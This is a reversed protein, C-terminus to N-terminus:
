KAAQEVAPRRPWRRHAVWWELLLLGLGALLLWPWLERRGPAETADPTIVTQGIQITRIPQIRSEDPAFFNVAFAGAPHSEGASDTYTVTYLGPQATEAFLIPEAGAVDSEWERGDPLAVRLGVARAPPRLPVVAGPALAGDDATVGGPSLWTALNAMLVPFAVQLPLDSRRLDFPLIAVRRSDIEGALLLPGGEAEILPSLGPAVVQKAEAIHVDGWVVDTLIPDDALRTLTTDTFVGNVQIAAGEAAAPQPNFILLNGPPLPDPLPVGDLITMDFSEGGALQQAAETAPDALIVEYGPLLAFLRELFLNGEASLLLVRQGGGKPALWAADDVGLYDATGSASGLRAEIPGGAAPLTWTLNVVEDPALAVQRSDFLTDNEYLSLLGEATTGGYNTLSVLLESQEGATRAALSAIGLNADQEGMPFFIVEGPLAPLEEPLGGDSLIVFRPDALGQASAAALAIAGPWDAPGIEPRASALAQRLLNRDASAAALVAPARGVAVITMRDGGSLGAILQEAQGTADSFRSRGNQGDAALMSASADILLILNGGTQSAARLYPRALALVLAALILLQLILLINRRLRQWPANATTDRTLERWLFTSSISQERRRLRLMYLLIIPLALLGLALAAPALLSM